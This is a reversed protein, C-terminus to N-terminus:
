RIAMTGGGKGALGKLRAERGRAKLVGRVRRVGRMILADPWGGRDWEGYFQNKTQKQDKEGGVANTNKNKKGKKTQGRDGKGHLELVHLKRGVPLGPGRGVRKKGWARKKLKKKQCDQCKRFTTLAKKALLALARDRRKEGQMLGNWNKQFNGRYRIEM